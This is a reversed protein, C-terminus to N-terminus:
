PRGRLDAEWAKRPQRSRGSGAQGQQPPSSHAISRTSESGSGSSVPRKSSPSAFSSNQQATKRALPKAPSAASSESMSASASGRGSDPLQAQARLRPELSPTTSFRAQFNAPTKPQTLKVRQKLPQSSGPERDSLSGGQSRKRKKRAIGVSKAQEVAKREAELRAKRTAAAKRQADGGLRKDNDSIQRKRQEPPVRKSRIVPNPGPSAQLQTRSTRRGLVAADNDSESPPPPKPQSMKFSLRKSPREEPSYAPDFINRRTEPRVRPGQSSTPRSPGQSSTPKRLGNPTTLTDLPPVNNDSDAEAGADARHDEHEDESSYEESANDPDQFDSEPESTPLALDKALEDLEHEDGNYPLIPEMRESPNVSPAVSGPATFSTTTSLTPPLMPKKIPDLKEKFNERVLKDYGYDYFLEEGAIINRAAYLMIRCVGNCLLKKSLVNINKALSSNNIFRSKNSFRSGDLEQDKSLKFLYEIGLNHYVTGRRHVELISILEGKYESIFAYKPIEEGAYLGWGHVESVGMVTRRVIGLQLGNNKCLSGLDHRNINAPDLVEEVGCVGCLAPDCERNNAWCECRTDEFCVKHRGDRCTCGKFRRSCESSCGCSTECSIKDENCTCVDSSCPGAHSCPVFNRREELLKDNSLDLGNQKQKDLPAIATSEGVHQSSRISCIMLYFLSLCPVSTIALAMECPGRRSALAVPLLSCYLDDDAKDTFLARNGTTLFESRLTEFDAQGRKWSEWFCQSSDCPTSDDFLPPQSDQARERTAGEVTSDLQLGLLQDVRIGVDVCFVGCTHNRGSKNQLPLAAHERANIYQELDDLVVDRQPLAESKCDDDSSLQHPPSKTLHSGPPHNVADDISTADDTDDEDVYAGHICCSFQGCAYCFTELHDNQGKEINHLHELCNQLKTASGTESIFHWVSIGLVCWFVNCFLAALYLRRETTPRRILHAINKWDASRCDTEECSPCEGIRDDWRYEMEPLLTDTAPKDEDDAHLMHYLLDEVDIGLAKLLRRFEPQWMSATARCKRQMRRAIITDNYFQTLDAYRDRQQQTAIAMENEPFWPMHTLTSVNRALIDRSTGLRGISRVRPVIGAKFSLDTVNLLVSVSKKGTKAPVAFTKLIFKQQREKKTSSLTTKKQPFLKAFPNPRSKDLVPGTFCRQLRQADSLRTKILAEQHEHVAAEHKLILREINTVDLRAVLTQEIIEDPGYIQDSLAAPTPAPTPLLHSGQDEQDQLMATAETTSTRKDDRNDRSLSQNVTAEQRRSTLKRPATNASALKDGDLDSTSRAESPRLVIPSIKDRSTLTDKKHLDSEDRDTRSSSQFKSPTNGQESLKSGDSKEQHLKTAIPRHSPKKSSTPRADDIARDSEVIPPAPSPRTRQPLPSAAAPTGNATPSSGLARQPVSNSMQDKLTPNKSPTRVLVSSPGTRSIMPTGMKSGKSSSEDKRGYSSAAVTKEEDSFVEEVQVKGNKVLARVKAKEEERVKKAVEKRHDIEEATPPRYAHPKTTGISKNGAGSPRSQSYEDDSLTLDIVEEKPAM